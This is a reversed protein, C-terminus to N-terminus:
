RLAALEEDLVGLGHDVDEATTYPAVSLRLVPGEGTTGCWLDVGRRHLRALLEEPDLAPLGVAVMAPARPAPPLAYVGPVALLRDHAHTTLKARHDALGDRELDRQYAVAERGLLHAVVDDTGAWSFRRALDESEAFWSTVVPRVTPAAEEPLVLFGTGTPLHLWKHLTLCGFVGPGAVPMPMMGATHAGDVVVAVGTGALADSLEDVPNVQSWPSTVHSVVVARTRPGVAALVREGLGSFGGDVTEVEVGRATLLRLLVTTAEYERSTTVVRDGPRLALHDVVTQMATTANRVFVGRDAPVGLYHCVARRSAELLPFVREHYFGPYDQEAEARLGRAVELVPLPTAGFSGHNLFTREPAIAYDDRRDM